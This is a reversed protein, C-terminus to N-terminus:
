SLGGTIASDTALKYLIGGQLFVLQRKGNSNEVVELADVIGVDLPFAGVNRDENPELDFVLILNARTSADVPIALLYWSKEMWSFYMGRSNAESGSTIRQLIPFVGGSMRRPASQGDWVKPVNDAGLWAIGFPTEAISLHSACGEKYPLKSFFASYELPADVTIDEIAGRFVFMENSRSWAVIGSEIFGIGMVNDSGIALNIRNRPPFSEEPRGIFIREYGSYAIQQGDAVFIRGQSERIYNGDAPPPENLLPAILSKDLEDDPCGDMISTSVDESLPWSGDDSNPNTILYFDSGGDETGFLFIRDVQEDDDPHAVIVSVDAPPSIAGTSVSEVSAVGVHGSASGFAAKYKRGTTFERGAGTTNSVPEAAKDGSATWPTPYENYTTQTIPRPTSNMKVRTDGGSVDVYINWGVAGAPAETVESPWSVRCLSGLNPPTPSPSTSDQDPSAATEGGNADVWTISVSYTRTPYDYFGSSVWSVEPANIPDDIGTSAATSIMPEAPAAIGWKYWNTGDWKMMRLGNAVFLINNSLVFSAVADNSADQEIETSAYGDLAFRYVYEGVIAIVQRTGLGNQFNFINGSGNLQSLVSSLATPARLKSLGGSSNPIVNLCDRAWAPSLNTLSDWCNIGKFMRVTESQLNRAM